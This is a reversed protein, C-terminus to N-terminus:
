KSGGNDDDDGLTTFPKAFESRFKELDKEFTGTEYFDIITPTV